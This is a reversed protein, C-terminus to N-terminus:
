QRLLYYSEVAQRYSASDLYRIGLLYYPFTTDTIASGSTKFGDYASIYQARMGTTDRYLDGYLSALHNATLYGRFGYAQQFVHGTKWIRDGFDLYRAQYDAVLYDQHHYSLVKYGPQNGYVPSIAPMVLVPVAPTEVPDPSMILRFDDRHVHGAFVASVNNRNTALISRLRSLYEERILPIVNPLLPPNPNARLTAFVDVGTPIHMIVWVKDGTRAADALATELWDLQATAAASIAANPSLYVANLSFIRMMTGNVIVQYHGGAPYTAVFLNKNVTTKLFANSFIVASNALFQGNPTIQYDDESTDNNGLCFYIPTDPYYQTFRSAIYTLTKDVFRQLGEASEDRTLTKYTTNFRHMLFDGTYIIFDPSPSTRRMDALTSELLAWNSEHGFTPLTNQLASAAFIANWKNADNEVLQTVITPDEFPTFHVDSFILAESTSQSNSGCATFLLLLCLLFIAPFVHCPAKKINGTENVTEIKFSSAMNIHKIIKM